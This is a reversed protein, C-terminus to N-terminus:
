SFRTLVSPVLFKPQKDDPTDSDSNSNLLAPRAGSLGQGRPNEVKTQDTPGLCPASTLVDRSLGKKLTRDGVPCKTVGQDASCISNFRTGSHFDIMQM